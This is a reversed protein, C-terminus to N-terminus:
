KHYGLDELRAKIASDIETDVTTEHRPEDGYESLRSALRERVPSETDDIQVPEALPDGIRYLSAEGDGARVLKHGDRHISVLSRDYRNIDVHPYEDVIRDRQLQLGAYQAIAEDPRGEIDHLIDTSFADDEEPATVDTAELVTRYIDTLQVFESAVRGSTGGPPRIVLPVRLVTDHLSSNHGLLGHDAVNEGHDGVVILLTDDLIGTEDLYDYVRGVFSDVHAIEGDYLRRLIRRERESFSASGFQVDYVDQVIDDVESETVDDPLHASRYPEPPGYKLHPELYNAVIFFPDDTDDLHNTLLQTIRKGSHHYEDRHLAGYALNVGDRLVNGQRLITSAFTLLSGPSDWLNTNKVYERYPEVIDTETQFLKWLEYTQDFGRLVGFGESLWGNNSLLTTDYGADRLLEAVTPLEESLQYGRAHAGHDFPLRGTFMSAHSPLTWPANSLANAYRIGEEAIRDVNPSTQRDYGYCSFDHARATDLVLILVNPRSM